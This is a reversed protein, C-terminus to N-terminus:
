CSLKWVPQGIMEEGTYGLMELETRNVNTIRGETDYEHYGVPAHDYLEKFKEESQFLTAEARKREAIELQLKRNIETLERTREVVRNELEERAKQVMRYLEFSELTNATNLLIISLLSLSVGPINKEGPNLIGVFLGRIRAHTAMVHLLVQRQFDKSSVTVARRERLAWAFTGNDILFEVQEKVSDM